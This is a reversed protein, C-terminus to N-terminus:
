LDSDPTYSLSQLQPFTVQLSGIRRGEKRLALIVFMYWWAQIIQHTVLGPNWAQYALVRGVWGCSEKLFLLNRDQVTAWNSSCQPFLKDTLLVQPPLLVAYTTPCYFPSLVQEYKTNLGPGLGPLPATWVVTPSLVETLWIYTGEWAYGPKGGPHPQVRQLDCVAPEAM